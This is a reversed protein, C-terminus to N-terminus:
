RSKDEEARIEQRIQDILRDCAMTSEGAEELGDRWRCADQLMSQLEILRKQKPDIKIGLGEARNFIDEV